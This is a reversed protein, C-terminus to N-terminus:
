ILYKLLYTYPLPISSLWLFFLITGSAAGHISRSVRMRLSALWFSCSLYWIIDSKDPIEYVVCIFREVSFFSMPKSFLSTTTLPSPFPTSHVPLKPNMSAFVQMQLPCAIHDQPIAYSVINTVQSPVHHFFIHSFSFSFIYIYIYIYIYILTHTLNTWKSYLLFKVSCQLGLIIPIFLFWYFM